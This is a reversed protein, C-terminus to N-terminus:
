FPLENSEQLPEGDPIPNGIFVEKSAIVDYGSSVSDDDGSEYKLLLTIEHMGPALGAGIEYAVCCEAIEKSAGSIDFGSLQVAKDIDDETVQPGDSGDFVKYLVIVIFGRYHFKLLLDLTEEAKM